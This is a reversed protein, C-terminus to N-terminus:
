FRVEWHLSAGGRTPAAGFAMTTRRQERLKGLRARAIAATLVGAVLVAIGTYIVIPTTRATAIIRQREPDDIPLLNDNEQKLKKLREQSGLYYMVAGAILTAGGAIAIGAGAITTAGARRIKKNMRHPDAGTGADGNAGHGGGEYTWRPMPAEAALEADEGPAAVARAPLTAPLLSAALLARCVAANSRERSM